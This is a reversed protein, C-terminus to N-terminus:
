SSTCFSRSLRSSYHSFVRIYRSLVGNFRHSLAHSCSIVLKLLKQEEPENVRITNKLLFQIYNISSFSCSLEIFHLISLYIWHSQCTRAIGYRYNPTWTNKLLLGTKVLVTRLLSGPDRSLIDQLSVKMYSYRPDKMCSDFLFYFLTHTM